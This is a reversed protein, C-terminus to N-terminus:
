FGVWSFVAVKLLGVDVLWGGFTVICRLFMFICFLVVFGWM